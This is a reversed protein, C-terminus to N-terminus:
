DEATNSKAYQGVVVRVKPADSYIKNMTLHCVQADDVFAVGNLGDLVAKGVNDLDPKKTPFIRGELMAKQATKSASKAVPFHAFVMVTVPGDLMPGGKMSEKCALAVLNEYAATKNDTYMAIHNGRKFARPRGKGRPPGPITFDIM